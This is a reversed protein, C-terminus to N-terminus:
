FLDGRAIYQEKASRLGGEDVSIDAGNIMGNSDQMSM